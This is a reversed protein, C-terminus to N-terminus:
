DGGWTRNNDIVGFYRHLVLALAMGPYQGPEQHFLGSSVPEFYDGEAWKQIHPPAFVGFGRIYELSSNPLKAGLKRGVPAVIM